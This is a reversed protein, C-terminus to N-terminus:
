AGTISNLIFYDYTIRILSYLGLTFAVFSVTLILWESMKM